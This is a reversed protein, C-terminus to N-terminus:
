LFSKPLKQGMKGGSYIINQMRRRRASVNEVADWENGLERKSREKKAEKTHNNVYKVSKRLTQTIKTFIAVFLIIRLTKKM